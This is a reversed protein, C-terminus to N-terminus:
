ADADDEDALYLGWDGGNPDNGFRYKCDDPLLENLKNEMEGWLWDLLEGYKGQENISEAHDMNYRLGAVMNQYHDGPLQTAENCMDIITAIHDVMFQGRNGDGLCGTDLWVSGTIQITDM